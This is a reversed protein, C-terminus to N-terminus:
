LSKEDNTYPRIFARFLLLGIAITIASDAVNFAPWSLPISLSYGFIQPNWVSQGYHISIFDVVSGRFFRDSLNGIAGGSILSFALRSLKDGMPQAAYFFLLTCFAIAGMVYFFGNRMPSDWGNLFGFAAGNNRWHVIDFIQPIVVFGDGYAVNQTIWYKTLHDLSLIVLTVTIFLQWKNLNGNKM